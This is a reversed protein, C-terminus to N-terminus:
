LVDERPRLLAGHTKLTRSSRPAKGPPIPYGQACGEGLVALSARMLWRELHTDPMADEGLGIWRTEPQNEFQPACATIRNTAKLL